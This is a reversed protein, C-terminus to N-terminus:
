KQQIESNDKNNKNVEISYGFKKIIKEFDNIIEVENKDHTLWDKQNFIKKTLEIKLKDREEKELSSIFADFTSMELQTKRLKFEIVKRKSAQIACYRAVAAIGVTACIRAILAIYDTNSYKTFVFWWISLGVLALMSLITAIYWTKSEKKAEDSYKQYINSFTAGAIHGIKETASALLNDIKETTEVKMNEISNSLDLLRKQKESEFETISKSLESNFNAQTESIEKKLDILQHKNETLHESQKNLVDEQFTKQKTEYDKIFNEYKLSLEKLEKEYDIKSQKISSNLETSNKTFNESEQIIKEQLNNLKTRTEDIDKELLSINKNVANQYGQLNQKGNANNLYAIIKILDYLYNQNVKLQKSNINSEINNLMPSITTEIPKVFFNNDCNEISNLLNNLVLSIQNRYEYQTEDVFNNLKENIAQIRTKINNKMQQSEEM